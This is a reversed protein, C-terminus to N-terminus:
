ELTRRFRLLALTGVVGLIAALRLLDDGIDIFGAGKLTVERVIRLFHTIPFCEGLAQAWAPMARFPFMFGSLLMSPLFLFFTTQMAQMQTRVATSILYGLILNTVIFLLVGFSMALGSWGSALSWLAVSIGCLIWRSYKDALIGFVPAMLMYSFLFATALLGTKAKANPDGALLTERIQPEVAALVQRDIYNFLNIALLLALAWKASSNSAPRVAASTIATTFASPKPWPAATTARAASAPPAVERPTV